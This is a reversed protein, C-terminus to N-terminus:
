TVKPQSRPKTPSNLIFSDDIDSFSTDSDMLSSVQSRRKELLLRKKLQDRYLPLHLQHKFMNKIKKRITTETDCETGNGNLSLSINPEDQNSDGNKPEGSHNDENQDDDNDNTQQITTPKVVPAVYKSCVSEEATQGVSDRLNLDCGEFTLLVRVVRYYGLKCAFHLPTNGQLRDPTNLYSDLLHNVRDQLNDESEGRYLKGVFNLNSMTDLLLAMIEAKNAKAAIHCANYRPGAMLNVISDSPSILCRPNSWITEEVAEYDGSEIKRRLQALQAPKPTSYTPEIEEQASTQSNTDTTTTIPTTSVTSATTPTIDSNITIKNVTSPPSGMANSSQSHLALRALSISLIDGDSILSGEDYTIREPDIERLFDLAENETSFTKMRSGSYKELM